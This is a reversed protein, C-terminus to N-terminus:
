AAWAAIYDLRIAAAAAPASTFTIRDNMAGLTVDTRVGNVYAAVSQEGEAEQALYFITASGDGVMTENMIHVHLSSLTWEATTASTAVIIKGLLPSGTLTVAGLDGSVSGGGGILDLIWNTGGNVTELIYRVTVGAGTDPNITGNTTVSAPWSITRGGTGDQTIWLELTAAGSGSPASLTVILDADLTGTHVNGDTPDFTETAGMSGHVKIVDQGGEINLEFNGGGVSFETFTVSDTGLIPATLNTNHFLLGGNLTGRLVSVYLGLLEDGTDADTARTPAGSANVTYIGNQSATAQDKILIRDGTALVIGDITDGNEFSTALTGAVTTAVRVPQKWSLAGATTGSVVGMPGSVVDGWEPVFNSIKLGPM